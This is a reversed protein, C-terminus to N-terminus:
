GHKKMVWEAPKSHGGHQNAYGRRREGVRDGAIAGKRRRQGDIIGAYRVFQRQRREAM